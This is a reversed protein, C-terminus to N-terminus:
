RYIFGQVDYKRQGWQGSPIHWVQVLSWDGKESVDRVPVNRTIEGTNLWNAHDVLIERPGMMRKVVAVHGRPAGAFCRTLMVGGAVPKPRRRYRPAAKDCWTLADGTLDIGSEARAFPV